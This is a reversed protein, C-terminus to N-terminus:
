MLYTTLATMQGVEELMENTCLLRQIDDWEAEKMTDAELYKQLQNLTYSTVM